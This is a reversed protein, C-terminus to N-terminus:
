AGVNENTYFKIKKFGIIQRNLRVDGHARRVGALPEGEFEQLVAVKTYDIADTYYDCDVSKVYAKREEYDFREVHFLRAEHLYIAKEHLSTLAAPFSVEAIVVPEATIDVVV